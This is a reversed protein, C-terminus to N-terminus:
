DGSTAGWMILGFAVEIALMIVFAIAWMETDFPQANLNTELDVYFAAFLADAIVTGTGM